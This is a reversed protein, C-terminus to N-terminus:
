CALLRETQVLNAQWSHVSPFAVVYYYYLLIFLLILFFFFVLFFFFSFITTTEVKTGIRILTKLKIYLAYIKTISNSYIPFIQFAESFLKSLTYM